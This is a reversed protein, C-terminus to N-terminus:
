DVVRRAGSREVLDDVIMRCTDGFEAFREPGLLDVLHERVAMVHDPAAAVITKWGTDTLVAFSGRRDDSCAERTVLGADVMRDIQHSLRSRSSLTREALESMRIRQEPHESLQVLIEYDAMTLGHKEALARSLRDPLLLSANLWARWNRQEDDSLWRTM